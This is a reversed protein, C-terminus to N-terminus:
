NKAVDFRFHAILDARAAVPALLLAALLPLLPKM